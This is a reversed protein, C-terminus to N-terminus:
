LTPGRTNCQIPDERIVEQMEFNEQPYIKGADGDQWFLTYM